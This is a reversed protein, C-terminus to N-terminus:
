CQASIGNTCWASFAYDVMAGSGIGSSYDLCKDVAQVAQKSEEPENNKADKDSNEQSHAPESPLLSAHDHKQAQIRPPEM